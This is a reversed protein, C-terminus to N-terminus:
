KSKVTVKISGAGVVDLEGDSNLLRGNAPDFYSVSTFTGPKDNKPQIEFTTKLVWAKKGNLDKSGSYTGKGKLTVTQDKASWDIPFDRGEDAQAPLFSSLSLLIVPLKASDQVNLTSSVNNAGIDESFAPIAPQAKGGVTMNSTTFQQTASGNALLKTTKVLVTFQLGSNADGSNATVTYTSEEGAKYTRAMKVPGQVASALLATTSLVAAFVM